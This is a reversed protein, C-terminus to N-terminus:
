LRSTWAVHCTSHVAIEGKENKVLDKASELSEDFYGRLDAKDQPTLSAINSLTNLRNWLEQKSIWIEERVLMEELPVFPLEDEDFVKRWEANKYRHVDDLTYKWNLDRLASEWSTACSFDITQNYDEVNWIFGLTGQPHLVRAFEVLAERTAFWHFSQAAIMTNAWGDPAPIACASGEKLEVGSLGKDRLVRLMERHPEVALIDFKEHRSALLKTFKGTGSAIELIRAGPKNALRLATL